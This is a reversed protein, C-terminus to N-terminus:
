SKFRPPRRTSAAPSFAWFPLLPGVASVRGDGAAIVDEGAPFVLTYGPNIRQAYTFGFILQLPRSCPPRLRRLIGRMKSTNAILKTM